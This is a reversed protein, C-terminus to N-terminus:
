RKALPRVAVVGADPFGDLVARLAPNEAALQGVEVGLGDEEPQGEAADFPADSYPGVIGIRYRFVERATTEVVTAVMRRWNEQSWHALDTQGVGAVFNGMVESVLDELSEREPAGMGLNIELKM